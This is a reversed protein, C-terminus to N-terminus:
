RIYPLPKGTYLDATCSKKLQWYVMLGHKGSTHCHNVQACTLKALRKLTWTGTVWTQMASTTQHRVATEGTGAMRGISTVLLTQIQASFPFYSDGTVGWCLLFLKLYQKRMWQKSLRLSRFLLFGYMCLHVSAVCVYVCVCLHICAGIHIYQIYVCQCGYVCVCM